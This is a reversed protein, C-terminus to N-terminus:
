HVVKFIFFNFKNLLLVCKLNVDNRCLQANFLNKYKFVLYM